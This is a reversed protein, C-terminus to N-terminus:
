MPSFISRITSSICFSPSRSATTWPVEAALPLFLEHRHLLRGYYLEAFLCTHVWGDLVDHDFTNNRMLAFSTCSDSQSICFWRGLLRSGLFSSPVSHACKEYSFADFYETLHCGTCETPIGCHM